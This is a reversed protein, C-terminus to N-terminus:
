RLFPAALLDEKGIFCLKVFYVKNIKKLNSTLVLLFKGVENEVSCM